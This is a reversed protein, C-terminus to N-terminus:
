IENEFCASCQILVRCSCTKTTNLFKKNGSVFSTQFVSASCQLDTLFVNFLLPLKKRYVFRFTVSINGSVSNFVNGYLM